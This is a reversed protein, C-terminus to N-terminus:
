MLKPKEIPSALQPNVNEWFIPELIADLVEDDAPEDAWYRPSLEERIQRLGAEPVPATLTYEEYIRELYQTAPKNKCLVNLRFDPNNKEVENKIQSDFWYSIGDHKVTVTFERGGFIFSTNILYNEPGFDQADESM